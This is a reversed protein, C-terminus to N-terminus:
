VPPSADALRSRATAAGIPRRTPPTVADSKGTGEAEMLMENLEAERDAAEHLERAQRQETM